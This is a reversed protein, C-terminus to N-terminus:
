QEIVKLDPVALSTWWGEIEIDPILLPEGEKDTTREIVRM